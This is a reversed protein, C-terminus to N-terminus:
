KSSWAYYMSTEGKWERTSSHNEEIKYIEVCKFCPEKYPVDMYEYLVNEDSSEVDSWRRGTLATM